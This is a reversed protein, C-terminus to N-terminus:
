FHTLKNWYQGPLTKEGAGWGSANLASQDPCLRRPRVASEQNMLLYPVVM